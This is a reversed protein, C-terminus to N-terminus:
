MAVLAVGCMSCGGSTGFLQQLASLKMGQLQHCYEIPPRLDALRRSTSWGLGPLERVRQGTMYALADQTCAHM